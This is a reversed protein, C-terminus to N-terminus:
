RLRYVAHSRPEVALTPEIAPVSIATAVGLGASVGGLLAALTPSPAVAIAALVSVGITSPVSAALLQRWWPALTAEAPAPQPEEDGRLFRARPDAYAVFATVFAGAGFAVLAPGAGAGALRAVVLWLVGLAIRVPAILLARRRLSHLTM